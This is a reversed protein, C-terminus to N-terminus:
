GGETTKPENNLDHHSRPSYRPFPQDFDVKEVRCAEKTCPFFAIQYDSEKNVRDILEKNAAKFMEVMAAPQINQDPHTNVYFILIGKM